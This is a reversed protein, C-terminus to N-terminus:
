ITFLQHNINTHKITCAYMIIAPITYRQIFLCLIHFIVCTHLPWLKLQALHVSLRTRFCIPWSELFTTRISPSSSSPPFTPTNNMTLNNSSFYPCFYPFNHNHKASSIPDHIGSPSKNHFCPTFLLRGDTSTHLPSFYNHNTSMVSKCFTFTLDEAPSISLALLFLM